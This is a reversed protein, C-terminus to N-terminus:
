RLARARHELVTFRKAGSDCGSAFVIVELALRPRETKRVSNSGMAAQPRSLGGVCGCPDSSLGDAGDNELPEPLPPLTVSRIAFDPVPVPVTALLGLPMLQPAVQELDNEVPVVTASVAVGAAPETKPPQLPAPQEPVPEHVTCSLPLVVTVAVNLEV